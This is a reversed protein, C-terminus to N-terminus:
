LNSLVASQEALAKINGRYLNKVRYGDGLGFIVREFHKSSKELFKGSM